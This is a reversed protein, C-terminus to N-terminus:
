CMNPRANTIAIWILVTEIRHANNKKLRILLLINCMKSLSYKITSILELAPIQSVQIGRRERGEELYSIAGGFEVQGRDKEHRDM